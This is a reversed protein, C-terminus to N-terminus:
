GKSGNDLPLQPEADPESKGSPAGGHEPAKKPAALKIAAEAAADPTEPTADPPPPPADGAGASKLPPMETAQMEEEPLLNQPEALKDPRDAPATKAKHQDPDAGSDKGSKTMIDANRQKWEKEAEELEAERIMADIGTRFQASIRRAKGMWQGATRLARPMEKPGIVLIAVVVVLLLEAAGIDFM